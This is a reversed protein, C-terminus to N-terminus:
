QLNKSLLRSVLPKNPNITKKEFDQREQLQKAELADRQKQLASNLEKAYKSHTEDINSLSQTLNNIFKDLDDHKQKFAEETLTTDELEKLLTDIQNIKDYKEKLDNAEKTKSELVKLLTNDKFTDRISLQGYLEGMDKLDKRLLSEIDIFINLEKKEADNSLLQQFNTIDKYINTAITKYNNLDKIDNINFIDYIFNNNFIKINAYLENAKVLKNYENKLGGLDSRLKDLETQLYDLTQTNKEWKINYTKENIEKIKNKINTKNQRLLEIDNPNDFYKIKDKYKSENWLITGFCGLVGLVGFTIGVIPDYNVTPLDKHVFFGISFLLLILFLVLLIILSYNIWNKNIAEQRTDRNCIIGKGYINSNM